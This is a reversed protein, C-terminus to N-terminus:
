TSPGQVENEDYSECVGCLTLVCEGNDRVSEWHNIEAQFGVYMPSVDQREADYLRDVLENGAISLRTRIRELKEVRTSALELAKQRSEIDSELKRIYQVADLLTQAVVPQRNLEYQKAQQKLAETVTSDELM